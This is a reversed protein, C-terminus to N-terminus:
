LEDLIEARFRRYMLGGACTLGTVLVLTLTRRLTPLQGDLVLMRHTACFLFLPNLREIRQLWEPLITDIYVIPTTWFWVQLLVSVLQATDRLFVHIVSAIIGIGLGFTLQLVVFPIWLLFTAHFLHGSVLLVLAFVGIALGANVSGSVAVFGYLVIKPFAVKRVLNANDLFVTTTRAILDQFAIWPLLGACLYIGYAM